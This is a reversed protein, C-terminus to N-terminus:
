GAPIRVSTAEPPFTYKTYHPNHCISYVHDSSAAYYVTTGQATSGNLHSARITVFRRDSPLVSQLWSIMAASHADAPNTSPTRWYSSSTFPETPLSTAAGTSTVVSLAAGAVLVILLLPRIRAM